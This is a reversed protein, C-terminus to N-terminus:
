LVINWTSDPIIDSVDISALGGRLYRLPTPRASHSWRLSIVRLFKSATVSLLRVLRMILSTHPSYSRGDEGGKIHTGLFSELLALAAQFGFTAPSLAHLLFLSDFTSVLLRGAASQTITRFWFCSLKFSTKCPEVALHIVEDPTDKDDAATHCASLFVFEAQPANNVMIDLLTLRKGRMAFRSNYPQDRDQKGHCALHVWTNCRLAKLSGAQTAEDGSLNTFRVNFSVLKHLLELGSDITALVTHRISLSPSPIPVPSQISDFVYGARRGTSKTRHTEMTQRVRILASLTPTYSCIYIDEPGSSTAVCIPRRCSCLRSM